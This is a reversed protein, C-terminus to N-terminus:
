EKSDCIYGVDTPIFYTWATGSTKPKGEVIGYCHTKPLPNPIRTEPTIDPILKELDLVADGHFRAQGYDEPRIIRALGTFRGDVIPFNRRIAERIQQGTYFEDNLKFCLQFATQTKPLLDTKM